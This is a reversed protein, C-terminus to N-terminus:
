ALDGFVAVSVFDKDLNTGLNNGLGIRVSTTTFPTATKVGAGYPDNAAGTQDSSTVNASMQTAASFTVDFNLTYDGAGNDTISSVNWDWTIAPTGTGNFRCLVKAVGPSYRILAADPYKDATEAEMEAQTAKEVVGTATDTAAQKLNTFAASATSAGTGGDAIALDAIGTISGGSITVNNADQTSITGLGLNTRAGGATSSGTGGDAVALDTIGTISGGTINVASAAQTAITGLGLTTQMAGTTTDDLLSVALATITGATYVSSGNVYPYTNAGLTLGAIGALVASYAQVNTGIVLGLTARGATADADDILSRGFSTLPTVSAASASTTYGIRDAAYTLGALARGGATLTYVAYVDLATTYISRDALTTLGAISQLGADYAQVNTGIVLGLNTRATAADSAGTGGHTVALDNTLALTAFTVSDSTRVAQDMAFCEVAGNGTNITNAVLTTFSGAAPTTGGIVSNDITAGTIAATTLIFTKLDAGTLKEDEIQGNRRILFLSDNAPSSTPNLTPLTKDTM